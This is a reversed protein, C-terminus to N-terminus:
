LVHIGHIAGCIASVTAKRRHLGPCIGVSVIWGRCGVLFGKSEPTRGFYAVILVGCMVHFGWAITIM